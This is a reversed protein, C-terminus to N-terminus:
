KDEDKNKKRKESWWAEVKAKFYKPYVTKLLILVIGAVIMLISWFQSPSLGPVFDGRYDGRLYEILFRFVGYAILYIDLNFKGSKKLYLFTLVGFLIFLFIAEYLNTPVVTKGIAPTFIGLPGDTEMGYCCGAFFCGIRGFGHAILICSPALATIESIKGYKKGWFIYLLLFIVVGGILGGIFTIGGFYFTGTALYNYFAQFLAASGFGGCIAIIGAYFIFDVLKASLGKKKGFFFLVAFCALIGIAIWVGYWHIEQGAIILLPQPFM